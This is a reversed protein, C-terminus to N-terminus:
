IEEKFMVFVPLNEDNQAGKLTINLLGGFFKANMATLIDILIDLM